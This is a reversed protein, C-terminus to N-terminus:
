MSLGRFFLLSYAICPPDIWRYLPQLLALRRWHPWCGAHPYSFHLGPRWWLISALTGRGLVCALPLRPMVGEGGYM